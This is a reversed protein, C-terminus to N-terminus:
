RDRLFFGARFGASYLDNMAILRWRAITGGDRLCRAGDAVGARYESSDRRDDAAADRTREARQLNFSIKQNEFLSGPGAREVVSIHVFVDNSGDDPHIFGFGTTANFFRVTGTPM